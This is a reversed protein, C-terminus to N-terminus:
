WRAGLRLSLGALQEHRGAVAPEGGFVYRELTYEVAGSLRGREARVGAASAIGFDPGPLGSVAVHPLLTSRVIGRVQGSAFDMRLEAGAGVETWRQRAPLLDYSRLTGAAHVALWPLPLVSVRADIEGLSRDDRAVSDAVLTGGIGQAELELTSGYRVLAAAGFTTGTSSAVGYGADVRHEMRGVVASGEVRWQAHLPAAGAALAAGLCLARALQRVLASM